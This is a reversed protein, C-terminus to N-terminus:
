AVEGSSSEISQFHIPNTLLAVDRSIRSVEGKELFDSLQYQGDSVADLNSWGNLKQALMTTLHSGVKLQQEQSLRFLNASIDNHHFLIDLKRTRELIAHKPNGIVFLESNKCVTDLQEFLSVESVEYAVKEDGNALMPVNEIGTNNHHSNLVNICADTIRYVHILDTTNADFESVATEYAGQLRTLEARKSFREGLMECEDREDILEEILRKYKSMEDSSENAKLALIDALSKLGALYVPSTIFYRCQVCNRRGLVASVPVPLRYTSKEAVLEGGENCSQGGVPCIGFDFYVIAGLEFQTSLNGIFAGNSNDVFMSTLNDFQESLLMDEIQESKKQLARKEAEQLSRRMAPESVKAYYITMVLNAHGVLKAVLAPSLSHDVLYATILSARLSHPTFNSAYKTLNSWPEGDGNWSALPVDPEQIKFLLIPLGTKLVSTTIPQARLVSSKAQAARFLFCQQGKFGRHKLRKEDVNAPLFKNDWKTPEQIPNYKMQWDRLRILWKGLEIPMYAVSYGGESNKTKNTTCYFGLSDDFRRLFGQAEQFEGALCHTNEVWVIEDSENIVPIEADAEGSDNWLIQQGRIPLELLTFMAIARVPSWIEHIIEKKRGLKRHSIERKRWVCNPDDKDIESENVKFYDCDYMAIADTLESFTKAEPPCLTERAGVIYAFPLIKKVTEQRRRKSFDTDVEYKTYPNRYEPLYVVQETEEDVDACFKLLLADIFAVIIAVSNTNRDSKSLENIFSNLCAPRTNKHLYEHPKTSVNQKILFEIFRRYLAVRKVINGGSKCLEQAVTIYLSYNPYQELLADFPTEKYYHLAGIFGETSHPNARMYPNIKAHESYEASSRIKHKQIYNSLQVLDYFEFKILAKFSKFGYHKVPEKPFREDTSQLKEDYERKKIIGSNAIRQRFEELSFLSTLTSKKAM